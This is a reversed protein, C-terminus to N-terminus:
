EKIWNKIKRIRDAIIKNKLHKGLVQEFTRLVIFDGESAIRAPNTISHYYRLLNFMNEKRNALSQEMQQLESVHVIALPMITHQNNSIEVGNDNLAKVFKLRFMFSIAGSSLIPDNVIILPYITLRNNLAIQDDNVYTKYTHFLKVTKVVLQMLGYDKYFKDMDLGQYDEITSVTKYGNIMPLYNSKAESIIIRKGDRIYFDAYETEQRGPLSFKLENSSRYVIRNHGNFSHQFINDLFPEFFVSGIFNGWDKRNCINNPRLYDFWFDNVFLAYTKELFFDGDMVIYTILEKGDEPQNKYLPSKKLELFDFIALDEDQPLPLNPRHSFKDLIKIQESEDFRLNIYNLQLKDDFSNYYSFIQRKFFEEMDGIDFTLKLYATLHPGFLVHNKITDFLTKSKYWGNISNSTQIYQNLPLMKFAFYEFFNDGLTEHDNPSFKDNQYLARENVALLYKFIRERIEFTYEPTQEAFINSSLIEQFAYLCTTRTFLNYGKPFQLYHRILHACVSSRVPNNNDLFIVRLCEVQTEFSDDFNSTMIPNLRSNIAGITAILEEKPISSLLAIPNQPIPQGFFDSYKIIIGIM